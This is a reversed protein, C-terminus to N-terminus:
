LPPSPAPPPMLLHASESWIKRHLGRDVKKEEKTVALELMFGSEVVVINKIRKREQLLQPWHRAPRQPLMAYKAFEVTLATFRIGLVIWNLQFQISSIQPCTLECHIHYM